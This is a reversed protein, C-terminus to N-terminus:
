KKGIKKLESVAPTLVGGVALIIWSWGWKDTVFSVALFVSIVIMWYILVINVKDISKEYKKERTYEGDELLKDFGSKIMSAKTMIWVGFAIFLLMVNVGIMAFADETSRGKDLQDGIVGFAIMAAVGIICLVTGFAISSNFKSMFADRRERVAGEVGYATDIPEKDLFAYKETLSGNKIFLMVGVAIICLMVAVGLGSLLEIKKIEGIVGLSIMPIVSIICLFTGLATSAALRGNKELFDNAEELTFRRLEEGSDEQKILEPAEIEDKLLYDTSVGFIESLAIMKNIDPVSQAGEWKSVSQRSVNMKEALEEQSLGSRKRLDILKDAFIM